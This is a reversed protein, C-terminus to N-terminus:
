FHPAVVIMVRQNPCQSAIHGLGQSKFCKSDRNNVKVSFKTYNPNSKVYRKAFGSKPKSSPLNSFLIREERRPQPTHAISPSFNSFSRPQGWRKHRQEIKVVKEVMDSHEVYHYMKMQNAIKPKLGSLFRAM